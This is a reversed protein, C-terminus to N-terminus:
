MSLKFLRNVVEIVKDYNPEETIERVVEKYAIRGDRDVVYVVRAFFGELFVPASITAGYRLANNADKYDSVTMINNIKNDSCFKGISFPLDKSVIMVEVNKMESIKKNFAITELKCVKTDFSPVFAIVQVKDKKGGVTVESFEKTVAAFSPADMGVKLGNSNLTVEEGKFTVSTSWAFVTGLILLYITKM